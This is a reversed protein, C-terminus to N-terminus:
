SGYYFQEKVIKGNSWHQVSVQQYNRIGWDKHTYDFKWIAFSTNGNVATQLVSADRFEVINALFEEERKRNASKGVTPETENEQMVVADDYYLEFADLLNGNAVLKNLHSLKEQITEM